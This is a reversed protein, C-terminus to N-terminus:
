EERAGAREIVRNTEALKVELGLERYVNRAEWLLHIQEIYIESKKLLDGDMSGYRFFVDALYEVSEKQEKTGKEMVVRALKTPAGPFSLCIYGEYDDEVLYVCPPNENSGWPYVPCGKGMWALQACFDEVKFPEGAEGKKWPLRKSARVLAEGTDHIRM